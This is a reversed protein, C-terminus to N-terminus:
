YFPVNIFFLRSAYNTIYMWHFIRKRYNTSLDAADLFGKLYKKYEEWIILPNKKKNEEYEMLLPLMHPM